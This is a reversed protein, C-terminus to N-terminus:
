ATAKDIQDKLGPIAILVEGTKPDCWGLNTAVANPAWAPPQPVPTAM